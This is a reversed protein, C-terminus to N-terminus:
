KNAVAAAEAHEEAEYTEALAETTLKLRESAADCVEATEADGHKLRKMRKLRGYLKKSPHRSIEDLVGLLSACPTDLRRIQSLDQTLNLEWDILEVNDQSDGLADLIRHRDIFSLSRCTKPTNIQELM